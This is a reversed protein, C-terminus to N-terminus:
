RHPGGRRAKPPPTGAVADALLGGLWTDIARVRESRTLGPLAELDLM